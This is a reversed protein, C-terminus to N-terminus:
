CCNIVFVYQPLIRHSSTFKKILCHYRQKVVNLSIISNYERNEFETARTIFHQEDAEPRYYTRWLRAQDDIARPVSVSDTSSKLAVFLRAGLASYLPKRLDKWEVSTWDIGFAEQIDELYKMQKLNALLSHTTEFMKKDVQVFVREVDVPADGDVTQVPTSRDLRSKSLNMPTRPSSPTPLQLGPLAQFNEPFSLIRSACFNRFFTQEKKIKLATKNSKM